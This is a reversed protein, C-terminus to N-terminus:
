SAVGVTYYTWREPYSGVGGFYTDYCTNMITAFCTYMIVLYVLWRYSYIYM